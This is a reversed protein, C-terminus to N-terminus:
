APLYWYSHQYRMARDFRPQAVESCSTKSHVSGLHQDGDSQAVARQSFTWTLLTLSTVLVCFMRTMTPEKGANYSFYAFTCGWSRARLLMRRSSKFTPLRLDARPLARRPKSGATSPRWAL